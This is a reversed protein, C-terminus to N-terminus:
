ASGGLFKSIRSFIDRRAEDFIGDCMEEVAERSPLKFEPNLSRVFNRFYGDDVFSLDYGHLAIMRALDGSGNEEQLDTTKPVPSGRACSLEAAVGVEERWCVRVHARLTSTGNRTSAGLVQQCRNCQAKDNGHDDTFCTFYKWVGSRRIFKRRIQPRGQNGAEAM